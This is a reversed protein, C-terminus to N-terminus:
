MKSGREKAKTKIKRMSGEREHTKTNWYFLVELAEHRPPLFYSGVM